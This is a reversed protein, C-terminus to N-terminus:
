LMQDVKVHMCVLKSKVTLTIDAMISESETIYVSGTSPTVSVLCKYVAMNDRSITLREIRLTSNDPHDTITYEEGGVIDISDGNGNSATWTFAIDVGTDVAETINPECTLDIYTNEYLIVDSPSTQVSVPFTPVPSFLLVVFYYM